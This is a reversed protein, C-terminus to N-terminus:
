FLQLRIGVVGFRAQEAPSYYQNMDEPKASVINERTYGCETLELKNYLEAFSSFRCLETVECRLVETEDATNEFRILDGVRIKRRKPDYLRLEVTKKGEQIMRYPSPNLRMRHETKSMWLYTEKPEIREASRIDRNFFLWDDIKLLEENRGYEMDGYAAPFWECVGEFIVGDKLTLRVLTEDYSSLKM